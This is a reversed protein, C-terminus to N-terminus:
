RVRGGRTGVGCGRGRDWFRADHDARATDEARWHPTRVVKDLDRERKQKLREVRAANQAPTMESSRIIKGEDDRLTWTKKM